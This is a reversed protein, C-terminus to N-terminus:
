HVADPKGLAFPAIEAEFREGSGTIMQYTGHMMGFSTNLPCGSTYEFTQGPDLVPQKGVVGPGRVHQVRGRSDTIVWHRALLQVRESGTNTIRIRYAFFWEGDAPRSRESVFQSTVEIRVGRTQASSQGM